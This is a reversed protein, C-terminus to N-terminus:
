HKFKVDRKNSDQYGFEDHEDKFIDQISFFNMPAQKQFIADKTQLLEESEKKLKNEWYQQGNYPNLIQNLIKQKKTEKQASTEEKIQQDFKNMQAQLIYRKELVQSTLPAVSLEKKEHSRVPEGKSYFERDKKLDLIEQNAKKLKIQLQLYSWEEYKV